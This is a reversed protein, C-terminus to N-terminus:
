YADGAFRPSLSHSQPDGALRKMRCRGRDGTRGGLRARRTAFSFADAACKTPLRSGREGSGRFFRLQELHDKRHTLVLPSLGKRVAALIDAIIKQNRSSDLVMAAYVDHITLETAELAM